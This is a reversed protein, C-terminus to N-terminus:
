APTEHIQLCRGSQVGHAHVGKERGGSSVCSADLLIKSKIETRLKVQFDNKHGLKFLEEQFGEANSIIEKMRMTMLASSTAGAARAPGTHHVPSHRHRFSQGYHSIM